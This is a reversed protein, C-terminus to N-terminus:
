EQLYVTQWNGGGLTHLSQLLAAGAIAESPYIGRIELWCSAIAANKRFPLRSFEGSQRCAPCTWMSHVPDNRASACLESWNPFPERCGPCRPPASRPDHRFRPQTGCELFVHCFTGSASAGALQEPDGPPELEIAPSCGLFTILQLFHEGAPYFRDTGLARPPGILGIAQLHTALREPPVHFRADQPHLLLKHAPM